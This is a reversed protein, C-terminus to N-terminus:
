KTIQKLLDINRKIDELDSDVKQKNQKYYLSKCIEQVKEEIRTIAHEKIEDDEISMIRSPSNKQLKKLRFNYLSENDKELKFFKCLEEYVEDISSEHQNYIIGAYDNLYLNYKIYDSFIENRKDFTISDNEIDFDKKLIHIACFSTIKTCNKEINNLIDKIKIEENM